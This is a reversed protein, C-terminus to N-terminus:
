FSTAQGAPIFGANELISQGQTSMVFRAFEAAVRNSAGRATVIMAQSLPLHSAVDVRMYPQHQMIEQNALSAAFLAVDAAGSLAMRATQSVSEGYVLKDQIQNWVGYTTLSEKARQGYPAIDPQAIAIRRVNDDLLGQWGVERMDRDASWMVLQGAAYLVPESTGPQEEAIQEPFATNASLFVDFPAGHLVQTTLRGSAGYVLVVNDEPYHEVFAEVMLDLTPRLSSAAAVTAQEARLISAGLLQVLLLGTFMVWQSM